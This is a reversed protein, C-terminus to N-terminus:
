VLETRDTVNLGLDKLQRDAVEGPAETLPCIARANKPFAIVDRISPYGGLLMIIRDLGLAIGGHPPAGFQLAELLFEFKLKAEEPTLGLIQFIRSQVDSRHIRISGGGLEVGNLVVDYAKARIKVLEDPSPVADEGVKLLHLDEDKPSTFPHHMPYIGEEEDHGFMPFDVVWCFAWKGKPILGRRDAVTMRLWGLYKCVAEKADAAFCILDGPRAGTRELMANVVAEDGLFKAVGTQFVRKGGDEAVKVVPMGGAGIGKLEEALADTEKRSMEAGGPVVICRVM